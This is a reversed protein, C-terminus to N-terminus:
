RQPMLSRNYNRPKLRQAQQSTAGQTIVFLADMPPSPFSQTARPPGPWTISLEDVATADGLGFVLDTTSQALFGSGCRVAQTSVKGGCRLKVVAGIARTNPPAGRLRLWVYHHTTPTDNRYYLIRDDKTNAQLVDVDGDQDFDGLGTARGDLTSDLGSAFSLDKFRLNGLNVFFHDLEYGSLSLGERVVKQYYDADSEVLADQEQKM